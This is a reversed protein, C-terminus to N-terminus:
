IWLEPREERLKDLDRDELFHYLDGMKVINVMEALAIDETEFLDESIALAEGYTGRLRSDPEFVIVRGRILKITIKIPFHGIAHTNFFWYNCGEKIDKVKM